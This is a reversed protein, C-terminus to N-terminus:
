KKRIKKGRDNFGINDIKEFRTPLKYSQLQTALFSQLDAQDIVFKSSYYAILVDMDQEVQVRVIASDIDTYNELASEIEELEVRFGNVKVMNDKRGIFSFCNDDLRLVIDGTCYIDGLSPKHRYGKMQSKTIVCLEGIEGIQANEGNEKVISVQAYPCPYGIPIEDTYKCNKDIEYYTIVNTETPGYFNYVRLDPYLSNLKNVYKYPMAEGAYILVRLSKFTNGDDHELLKIIISPVSYWISIRNSDIYKKVSKVFANIGRQMLVLEAGSFLACYIDFVSLDFSFPAHSAFIDVQKVEVQEKAWSVFTDAAMHTIEIGKPEGTTGSTYLIYAVENDHYNRLFKNESIIISGSTLNMWSITTQTCNNTDSIVLLAEADNIIYEIKSIPMGKDIPVFTCNCKYIAFITAVCDFSKNMYVCINGTHGDRVSNILKSIRNVNELLEKYTHAIKGERVAVNNPFSECACIFREYLIM